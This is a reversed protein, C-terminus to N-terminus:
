FYQGIFEKGNKKCGKLYEIIDPYFIILAAIGIKSVGFGQSALLGLHILDLITVVFIFKTIKKNLGENWHICYALILMQIAISYYYAFFDVRTSREILLCLNYREVEGYFM